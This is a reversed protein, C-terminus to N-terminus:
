EVIEDEAERLQRLEEVRAPNEQLYQVLYEICTISDWSLHHEIGEVDDFIVDESVGILRMFDELLAHRDVLRKGMKKGKSTLVLGRYKEYILYQSKDLKQVMKTVSSPHVNLAEAIDSVRAYGKEEILTYIRELYDEMSPTAM